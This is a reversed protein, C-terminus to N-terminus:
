YAVNILWKKVLLGEYTNKKSFNYTLINKFSLGMGLIKFWFLGHGLYFSFLFCRYFKAKSM